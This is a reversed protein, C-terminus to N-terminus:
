KEMAIIIQPNMQQSVLLAREAAAGARGPEIPQLAVPILLQASAVRGVQGDSPFLSRRRPCQMPCDFVKVM